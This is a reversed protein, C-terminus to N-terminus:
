WRGIPCKAKKLRAKYTIRCGCKKCASNDRELNECGDCVTLRQKVIADEALLKKDTVAGVLVQGVTELLSKVQKKV